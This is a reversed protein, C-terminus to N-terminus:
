THDVLAIILRCCQSRSRNGSCVIWDDVVVRSPHPGMFQGGPGSSNAVLEHVFDRLSTVEGDLHLVLEGRHSTSM